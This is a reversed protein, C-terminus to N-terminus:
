AVDRDGDDLTNDIVVAFTRTTVLPSSWNAAPRWTTWGAVATGDETAYTVTVPVAAAANLTVSIAATGGETVRYSSSEFAVKIEVVGDGFLAVQDLFILVRGARYRLPM